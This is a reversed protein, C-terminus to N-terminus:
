NLWELGDGIKVFAEVTVKCYSDTLIEENKVRWSAISANVYHASNSTITAESSRSSLGDSEKLIIEETFVEKNVHYSNVAYTTSRTLAQNTAKICTKDIGSAIIPGFLQQDTIATGGTPSLTCGNLFIYIFFLSTIRLM